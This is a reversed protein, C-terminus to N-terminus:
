DEDAMEKIEKKMKQRNHQKKTSFVTARPRLPPEYPKKHGPNVKDQHEIKEVIKKVSSM